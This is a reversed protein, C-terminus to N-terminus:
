IVNRIIISRQLANTVITKIESSERHTVSAPDKEVGFYFASLKPREYAAFNNQDSVNTQKAKCCM